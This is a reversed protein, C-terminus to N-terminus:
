DGIELELATAYRKDPEGARGDGSKIAPVSNNSM